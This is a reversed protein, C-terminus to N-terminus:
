KMLKEDNCCEGPRGIHLGFESAHATAATNPRAIVDDMRVAQKSKCSLIRSQRSRAPETIEVNQRGHGPVMYWKWPSNQAGAIQSLVSICSFASHCHVSHVRRNISIRWNNSSKGQKWPKCISAPNVKHKGCTVYWKTALKSLGAKLAYQM